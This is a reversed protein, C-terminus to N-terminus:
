NTVEETVIDLFADLADEYNEYLTIDCDESDELVWMFKVMYVKKSM